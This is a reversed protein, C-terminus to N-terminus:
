IRVKVKLDNTHTSNIMKMKIMRIKYPAAKVAAITMMVLETCLSKNPVTLPTATAKKFM